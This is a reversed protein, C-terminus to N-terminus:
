SLISPTNQWLSSMAKPAMSAMLSAPWFGPSSVVVGYLDSFHYYFAQRSIGCREVLETVTIGDLRKSQLLGGLTVVIENKTSKAM